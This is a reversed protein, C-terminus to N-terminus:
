SNANSMKRMVAWPITSAPQAQQLKKFQPLQILALSKELDSLLGPTTLQTKKVYFFIEAQRFLLKEWRDRGPLSIQLLKELRQQLRLSNGFSVLQSRSPISKRILHCLIMLSSTQNGKGYCPVTVKVAFSAHKTAQVGGLTQIILKALGRNSGCFHSLNLQLDL